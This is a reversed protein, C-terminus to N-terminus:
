LAVLIFMARAGCQGLWTSALSTRALMCRALNPALRLVSPTSPLGDCTNHAGYCVMAAWRLHYACWLVDDCGIALAIRVM